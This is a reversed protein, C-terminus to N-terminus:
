HGLQLARTTGAEAVEWGVDGLADATCEVEEGLVAAATRVALGNTLLRRRWRMLGGARQEPLHRTWPMLAAPKVEVLPTDAEQQAGDKLRDIEYSHEAAPAM